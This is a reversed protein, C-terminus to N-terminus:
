TWRNTVRKTWLKLWESKLFITIEGNPVILHYNANYTRRELNFNCAFFNISILKPGKGRQYRKNCKTLIKRIARKMADHIYTNSMVYGSPFLLWDLIQGLKL